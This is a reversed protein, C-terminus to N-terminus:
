DNTPIDQLSENVETITKFLKIPVCSELDEKKGKGMGRQVDNTCSVELTLTWDNNVNIKKNSQALNQLWNM